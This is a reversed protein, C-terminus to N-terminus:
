KRAGRGVTALVADRFTNAAINKQEYDRIKDSVIRWLRGFFSIVGATDEILETLM